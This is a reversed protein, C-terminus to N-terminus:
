LPGLENLREQSVGRLISRAVREASRIGLLGGRRAVLGLVLAAPTLNFSQAVAVIDIRAALSKLKMQIESRLNSIDGAALRSPERGWDILKALAEMSLDAVALREAAAWGMAETSPEIYAGDFDCERLLHPDCAKNSHQVWARSEVELPATAFDATAPSPLAVARQTPLGSQTAGAEDVLILSTLHTVIGEREALQAAAPTELTPLLFSAAAASTARGLSPQEQADRATKGGFFEYSISVKMGARQFIGMGTGAGDHQLPGAQRRMSDTAAQILEGIEAGGGVFIDGGTLAALHGVNAELSDEGILVVSIRHGKRAMAHVDLAHSKGDTIVLIDRAKSQEIATLLARGIETGGQPGALRDVLSRLRGGTSNRWPWEFGGVDEATSGIHNPTNDFEWLDLVDSRQLRDSLARLAAVALAHKTLSHAGTSAMENMSGSHDILIAVDLCSSQNTVPELFLSVQRGDAAIGKLARPQWGGVVLDIPRNLQIRAKGNELVGEVLRVPSGVCNISIMGILAKGGTKFDDSDDLPSRGYIDGVTIPIRLHGQAGVITLTTVWTTSVEIQEGPPVNAVSLMHIGRLLEEHLVASKGLEIASEYSTRSKEKSSAKALLTRGGIRARLEFLTAHVPVPFTLTAEISEAEVNRFVRTTTAIALGTEITVDFDTSVLPIPHGCRRATHGEIFVHLPHQKQPQSMAHM